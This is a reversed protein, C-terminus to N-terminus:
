SRPRITVGGIHPQPDFGPRTGALTRLRKYPFEAHKRRGSRFISVMCRVWSRPSGWSDYNVPCAQCTATWLLLVDRLLLALAAVCLEERILMTPSNNGDANEKERVEKRSILPSTGCHRHLLTKTGGRFIM